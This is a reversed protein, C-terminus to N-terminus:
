KCQLPHLSFFIEILQWAATTNDRAIQVCQYNYCRDNPMLWNSHSKNTHLYIFVDVDLSIIVAHGSNSLASPLALSLMLLTTSSLKM